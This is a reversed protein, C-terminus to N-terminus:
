RSRIEGRVGDCEAMHEGSGGGCRRAGQRQCCRRGSPRSRLEAHLVARLAPWLDDMQVLTLLADCPVTEVPSGRWRGSKFVWASSM